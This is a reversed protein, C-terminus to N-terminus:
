SRVPVRRAVSRAVICREIRTVIEPLDARKVSCFAVRLFRPPVAIVGTSEDALLAVRVDEAAVGAAEPIELLAFCGSNFPLVSLVDPDVQALADKLVRYRGYLQDRITGIRAEISPDRLAQLLVVQSLAVPSGVTSRILGKVKDELAAAAPSDVALGFTLFGVRGGFFAFEKTAGDVKVAILNPHAGALAWFISDTPVDPEYVLGLYADDCLAVVPRRDALRLVSAVLRQREPETPSYGGPNSPFNLVAVVPGQAEGVAEEYVAANFEGDRFLPASVLRAGGRMGFIQRYNGWFPAPVAVIRDPGGFLDAAISIAHSIGATVLPLTSPKGAGHGVRQWTRWRERVELLGEIPSYLLAANADEPNLGFLAERIPELSLAHGQGDTMQGITGNYLAAKAEAAQHPIELPYYVREGLPSLAARVAPAERALIENLASAATAAGDHGTTM